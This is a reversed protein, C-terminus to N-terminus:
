LAIQVPYPGRGPAKIKQTVQLRQKQGIRISGLRLVPIGQLVTLRELGSDVVTVYSSAGNRVTHCRTAGGLNGM